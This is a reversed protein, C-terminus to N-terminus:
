VDDNQERHRSISQNSNLAKWDFYIVFMQFKKTILLVRMGPLILFFANCKLHIRMDIEVSERVCVCMPQIESWKANVARPTFDPLNFDCNIEM